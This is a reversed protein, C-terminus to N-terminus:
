SEQGDAEDLLYIEILKAFEILEPVDSYANSQLAYEIAKEKIAKEKITDM